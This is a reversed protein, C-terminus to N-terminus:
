ELAKQWARARTRSAPLLKQQNEKPYKVMAVLRVSYPQNLRIFRNRDNVSNPTIEPISKSSQYNSIFLELITHFLSHHDYRNEVRKPQRHNKPPIYIMSTLFNDDYAGRHNWISGNIGM